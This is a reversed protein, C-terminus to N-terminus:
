LENIKELLWTRNLVRPMAELKKLLVEPNNKSYRGAAPLLKVIKIFNLREEKQEINIYGEKYKRQVYQKFAECRAELVEYGNSKRTEYLSIILLKYARFGFSYDEFELYSLQQLVKSYNKNANELFAEFLTEINHRNEEKVNLHKLHQKILSRVEESKKLIIGIDVLNTFHNSSIQNNFLLIGNELGKKYLMFLKENNGKVSLVGTNILMEFVHLARERTLTEQINFFTQQLIDFQEPQRSDIQNWL